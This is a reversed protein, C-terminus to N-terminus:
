NSSCSSPIHSSANGHCKQIFFVLLSLLIAGLESDHIINFVNQVHITAETFKPLNIFCLFHM